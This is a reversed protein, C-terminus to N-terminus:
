QKILSEKKYCLKLYDFGIICQEKKKIGEKSKKEGVEKIKLKSKAVNIKSLVKFWVIKITCISFLIFFYFDQFGTYNFTAKLCKILDSKLIRIM